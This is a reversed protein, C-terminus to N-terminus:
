RCHKEIFAWQKSPSMKEFQKRTVPLYDPNDIMRVQNGWYGRHRAIKDLGSKVLFASVSMQHSEAYKTFLQLVKPPTTVHIREMPEKHRNNVM